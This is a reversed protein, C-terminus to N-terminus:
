KQEFIKEALTLYNIGPASKALEAPPALAVKKITDFGAGQLEELILKSIGELELISKELIPSQSDAFEAMQVVVLKQYETIKQVILERNLLKSLLRANMGKKGIIVPYDEDTVVISFKNEENSVKFRLIEVPAVANKLLEIHDEAYPFVDIKENNLERIINKIRTGRVGVCTGVPDIKPDSSSVAMKTRYGAERVIKEITILGDEIEPVEQAFLASVFEPASRSLIVEAGGNDTDRTEVLLAQVREGINYREEKPYNKDPLIAEVKGLDVVMSRGKLFRKVTGSIVENIRHRYEEYIVDREAGRLKQAIIQRATQAAIRGFDKPTITIELRQGEKCDPNLLLADELSIEEEPNNVEKVITKRTFVDIDGTKKDISVSPEGVNEISKIAALRLAEEIASIVIERKIGKERELYEFIAVLDKNM